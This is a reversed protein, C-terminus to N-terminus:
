CQCQVIVSMCGIEIYGVYVTDCELVYVAITANMELQYRYVRFIFM